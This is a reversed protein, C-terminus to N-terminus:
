IKRITHTKRLGIGFHVKKEWWQAKRHFLTSSKKEEIARTKHIHFQTTLHCNEANQHDYLCSQLINGYRLELWLLNSHLFCMACMISFNLQKKNMVKAIYVMKWASIFHFFIVYCCCWFNRGFGFRAVLHPLTHTHSLAYFKYFRAIQSYNKIRRKPPYKFEKQDHSIYSSFTFANLDMLYILIVSPQYIAIMHQTSIEVTILKEM